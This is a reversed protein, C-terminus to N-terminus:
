AAIRPQGVTPRALITRRHPDCDNGRVRPAVRTSDCAMNLRKGACVAVCTVFHADDGRNVRKVLAARAQVATGGWLFPLKVAM